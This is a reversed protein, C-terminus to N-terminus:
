KLVHPLSNDKRTRSIPPKNTRRSRIFEINDDAGGKKLPKEQLEYNGKIFSM